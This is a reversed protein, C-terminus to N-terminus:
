LIESRYQDVHQQRTRVHWALNIALDRAWGVPHTPDQEIADIITQEFIDELSTKPAGM